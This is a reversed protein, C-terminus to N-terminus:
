DKQDSDINLKEDNEGEWVEGGKYLGQGGSEVLSSQAEGWPQAAAWLAAMLDVFHARTMTQVTRVTMSGKAISYM